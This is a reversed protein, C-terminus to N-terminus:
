IWFFDIDWIQVSSNERFYSFCAWRKMYLGFFHDSHFNVSFEFIGNLFQILRRPSVQDIEILQSLESERDNDNQKRKWQNRIFIKLKNVEDNWKTFRWDIWQIWFDSPISDWTAGLRQALRSVLRQTLWQWNCLRDSRIVGGSSVPGVVTGRVRDM